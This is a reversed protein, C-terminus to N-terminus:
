RPQTDALAVSSSLPLARQGASVLSWQQHCPNHAPPSHCSGSDKGQTCSTLAVHHRIRTEQGGAPLTWGGEVLM